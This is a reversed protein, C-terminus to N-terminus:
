IVPKATKPRPTRGAPLHVPFAWDWNPAAKERVGIINIRNLFDSSEQIKTELIQQVSAEVAFKETADPVGNLKAVQEAYRKFAIRTQKLM